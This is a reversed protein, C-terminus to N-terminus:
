AEAAQETQQSTQIKASRMKYSSSSWRSMAKSCWWIPSSSPFRHLFSLIMISNPQPFPLSKLHHHILPLPTPNWQCPPPVLLQHRHRHLQLISGKLQPIHAHHEVYHKLNQILNMMLIVTLTRTRIVRMLMWHHCSCSRLHKHSIGPKQPILFAPHSIMMQSSPGISPGSVVKRSHQSLPLCVSHQRDSRCTNRSSIRKQCKQGLLNWLTMVVIWSPMNSHDLSVWMLLSCSTHPILHFASFLSIIQRLSASSRLLKMRAM